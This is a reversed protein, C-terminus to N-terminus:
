VASGGTPRSANEPCHESEARGLGFKKLPRRQRRLLGGSRQFAERGERRVWRPSRGEPQELRM